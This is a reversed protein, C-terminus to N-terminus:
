QKPPERKAFQGSRIKPIAQLVYNGVASQQGIGQEPCQVLLKQRCEVGLPIFDFNYAKGSVRLRFYTRKAWVPAVETPAVSFLKQGSASAFSIENPGLTLNGSECGSLGREHCVSFTIQGGLSLVKDWATPGGSYEGSALYARGIGAWAEPEAPRLSSAKQFWALAQDWQGAELAHHGDKLCSEYDSCAMEPESNAAPVSENEAARAAEQADRMAQIVSDSVGAKKLNVMGNVSTDFNCCPESKITSIIIGDGLKATAMKVVDDNTLVHGAEPGTQNQQEDNGGIPLVQAITDEIEYVNGKELYGKTFQFDIEAKYAPSPTDKNCSGCEVVGLSITEKAIDVRIETPHVREGVTLIRSRDKIPTSCSVDPTRLIGNVYTVACPKVIMPAFGLVGEKQVVLVTDPAYQAELQEKVSPAKPTQALTPWLLGPFILLNLIGIALACKM